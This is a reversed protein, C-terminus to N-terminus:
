SNGFLVANLVWTIKPLTLIFHVQKHSVKRWGSLQLIVAQRDSHIRNIYYMFRKAWKCMYTRFIGLPESIFHFTKFLHEYVRLFLPETYSCFFSYSKLSSKTPPTFVKKWDLYYIKVKFSCKPWHFHRTTWPGEHFWQLWYLVKIKFTYLM